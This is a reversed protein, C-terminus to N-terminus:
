MVYKAEPDSSSCYLTSSVNLLRILLKFSGSLNSTCKVFKCRDVLYKADTCANLTLPFPGGDGSTETLVSSSTGGVAGTNLIWEVVLELM